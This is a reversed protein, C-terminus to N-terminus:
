KSISEVRTHEIEDLVDDRKFPTDQTDVVLTWNNDEKGKVAEQNVTDREPKLSLFGGIFLGIFLGPSVLALYTFGVSQQAWQPGNTTLYYAILMGGMFGLLGWILHLSWMESKVKKAKGELKESVNTDTPAIVKVKQESLGLKRMIVAKAQMVADRSSYVAAIRTDTVNMSIDSM